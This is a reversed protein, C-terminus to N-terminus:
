VSQRIKRQAKKLSEYRHQLGSTLGAWNDIPSAWIDIKIQAAM